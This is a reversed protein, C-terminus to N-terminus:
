ITRNKKKVYCVTNATKEQLSRPPACLMRPLPLGHSNKLFERGKLYSQKKEKCLVCHGINKGYIEAFFPSYYVADKLWPSAM